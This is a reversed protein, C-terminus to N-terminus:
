TREATENQRDNQVGKEASIMREWLKRCKPCIKIPVDPKREDIMEFYRRTIPSGCVYCKNM